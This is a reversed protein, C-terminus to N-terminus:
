YDESGTITELEKSETRKFSESYYLEIMNIPLIDRFVVHILFCITYMGLELSNLWNTSLM